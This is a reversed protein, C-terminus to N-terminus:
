DWQRKGILAKAAPHDAPMPDAGVWGSKRVAMTADTELPLTPDRRVGGILFDPIMRDSLFAAASSWRRFEMWGHEEKYFIKDQV